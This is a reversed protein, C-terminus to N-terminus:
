SSNICYLEMLIPVISQVYNWLLIVVNIKNVTYLKKNWNSAKISMFGGIGCGTRKRLSVNNVRRRIAFTPSELRYYYQFVSPVSGSAESFLFASKSPFLVPRPRDGFERKYVHPSSWPVVPHREKKKDQCTEKKGPRPYYYKITKSFVDSLSLPLPVRTSVILLILM